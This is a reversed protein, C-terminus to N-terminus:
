ARRTRLLRAGYGPLSGRVQQVGRQQSSGGLEAGQDLAVLAHM